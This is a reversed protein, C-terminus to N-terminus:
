KIKEIKDKTVMFANKAIEVLPMDNVSDTYFNELEIDPYTSKFAKVKNERFCAFELAGTDPDIESCICNKIGLRRLIEDLLITPSSSIIIDSPKKQKLYFPKIKHENLDWFERVVSERNPINAIYDQALNAYTQLAMDITIKGTKYKFLGVIMHPIFRLLTIDKKLYFFFFDVVSEGDYITDDFDYVNM